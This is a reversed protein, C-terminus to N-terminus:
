ELIVVKQVTGSRQERLYYVGASLTVRLEARGRRVEYVQVVQGYGNILEFTGDESSEITFSGSTPNPYVRWTPGGGGGGLLSSPQCTNVVLTGTATVNGCGGTLTVTYTFTGAVTPTGSITIDGGSFAGTVGAPLGSFTAGTAGTTSYTIPTIATNVCVTQNDTGSAATLTITNNPQVNITGTATVNGCGGTLTVTYTFTGAVTPTGSITIDGGSFAGTVGAPLGSFTAGTAGTTSYTIPTIATNVCVTQNDTGSAATLTITNNPQVNITGTATVNGCGGTLTVTYTFTGAVTPTGSITIDGGSFAGTVGAPLGSFTAGTAGTTSYTIPTIATNVCVTQNDTGSAATLTITNNPQVNITGTATVNGCGGTLTVTYTFTGAVMPSGSITIDGGSFTGTVGPPLDSFTAGTAGTTSYTIPTIATNVCVTQNDTGSASTLTITNNPQVIITGTATVNGCGGTLTVTYTFTGAVMPSGSITIDGGSFTGTVGPPLDAFTAGTAGTTSYTIPTIATNVCVTQNDTGPASTLTITNDPQVTITGTATTVGGCGGTLTVTYNFTGTVTPTGSITINGGSFTGTVGAPLGSFTAGTAGTTSYTIPTIATNVCVTQNDTGPASTRTITNNPRVIITGRAATLSGCGGTLTVTYTFTGTATPTGSITIDGGSFTGTVGAPLGSFTAGTAGTTSYTIPTIPTNVCVTQNDTGPASTLTIPIPHCCVKTVFVDSNGGNTTQFAGPTVDYGSNASGTVYAYGSGDVAIGYGSEDGSGGIYTSYVLATGTANLKTVFVDNGGGRTTQFAGPTVDYDTSSTYGTVYAYGNGDVAIANGEEGGSGGIYTSYVLATGTANLKTVFADWWVGGHTTQFAGPTVDYDTSSTLGTVYANGSGDVAIGYGYDWNSGGIYTSYVLATGAANLKTVFVDYGGGNTTQFAGPTVDYNTSRTYGTVYVYGSGDVAIGYGYDEGSGGIYTSYVLATGTANLKTVFVDKYGGNTTQFAGPTVDYNTSETEGTVYAYGSGDVAIGYGEDNNSGGIYTSYVLATGTANLKTVFVDRGGGNTTQFAGPTVDYDTSSTYGTVYANGSGDVAIGYGADSGSGGIYTSYVLATGTANLKTVFVDTLGGNTTQFAGPTVDYNTSWTYGTVYAYGSGDVVIGYGHDWDSGGIYTSYVLPDIVLLQTPDYSGVEIGWGGPREVFRGGIERDGQYVRLEALKVEGFRTTFVLRGESDIYSKESGELGFVIQSPDGGPEVVWDYRLRGGELYYRMDIGAYVGKVWVEKYRRVYTAHRTPDNGILYNYYGELMERGERQPHAACGRLKMLVRHGILEVERRGLKERLFPERGEASPKEELKFFTYNVGWKTIWADLGGLRCLYLVDPHWQGKNEIFAPGGTAAEFKQKEEPLLARRSSILPKPSGELGALRLRLPTTTLAPWSAKGTSEMGVKMSM